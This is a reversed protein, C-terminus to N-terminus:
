EANISIRLDCFGYEVEQNSAVFITRNKPSSKIMDCYWDVGQQDLNSCPEDLLLLRCDTYFALALKLRQKMGSSFYKILKNENGKLGCSAIIKAYDPEISTRMKFHFTVLEMLTLEEPLEMYPSVFASQVIMEEESLEIQNSTAIVKGKTPIVYKYIIQLLTSKGSGNKGIIACSSFEPVVISIDKFLWQTHFRKGIERLEIQM